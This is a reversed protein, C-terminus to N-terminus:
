ERVIGFDLNEIRGQSLFIAAFICPNVIKCLMAQYVWLYQKYPLILNIKFFIRFKLDRHQNKTVFFLHM